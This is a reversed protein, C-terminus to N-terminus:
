ALDRPREGRSPCSGAGRVDTRYRFPLWRIRPLMWVTWNRWSSITRDGIRQGPPTNYTHLAMGASSEFLRARSVETGISAIPLCVSISQILRSTFGWQGCGEGGKEVANDNEFTYHRCRRQGRGRNKLEPRLFAPIVQHVSTAAWGTTSPITTTVGEWVCYFIYKHTFPCYILWYIFLCYTSLYAFTLM